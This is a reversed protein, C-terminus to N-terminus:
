AAHIPERTEVAEAKRATAAARTVPRQREKAPHKIHRTQYDGWALVVAFVVFAMIIGSLSVIEVTSM